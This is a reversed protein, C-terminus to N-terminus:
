IASGRFHWQDHLTQDWDVEHSFIDRLWLYSNPYYLIIAAFM